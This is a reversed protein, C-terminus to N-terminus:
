PHLSPAFLLLPSALAVQGLAMGPAAPLAVRPVVVLILLACLGLLLTAVALRKM